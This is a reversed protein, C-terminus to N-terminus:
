NAVRRPWKSVTQMGPLHQGTFSELLFLHLMGATWVLGHMCGDGFDMCACTCQTVVSHEARASTHPLPSVLCAAGARAEPRSLKECLLHGLAQRGKLVGSPLCYRNLCIRHPASSLVQDCCASCGKRSWKLSGPALVRLGPSPEASRKHKCNWWGTKLFPAGTGGRFM